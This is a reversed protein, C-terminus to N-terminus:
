STIGVSSGRTQNLTANFQIQIREASAKEEGQQGLTPNQHKKSAQFLEM